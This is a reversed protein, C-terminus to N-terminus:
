KNEKQNSQEIQKECWHRLFLILLAMLLLLISISFAATANYENYLIEIHLPLTNTLGQIHGSIISVAGFEGMARATCMVVGYLLAWKIHPFTIYRFIQWGSAGLLRAAEEQQTGQAQMLTILSRAIFPFTVFITALVIGPVAYIIQLQHRMLFPYLFSQSGYLLTYILGVIVPSISFPLDILTLLINKGKFEYKCLCWTATLGFISNFFVACLTALLTLKLASLADPTTCAQWFFTLGKNLGEILIIGLPAIFIFAFILWTLAIVRYKKWFNSHTSVPQKM